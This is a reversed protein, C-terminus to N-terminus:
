PDASGGAPRDHRPRVPRRRRDCGPRRGARDGRRRPDPEAAAPGLARRRLPRAGRKRASPRCLRDGPLATEANGDPRPRRLRPRHGRGLRRTDLDDVRLLLAPVSARGAAGSPGPPLPVARHTAYTRHQVASVTGSSDLLREIARALEVSVRELEEDLARTCPPEGFVVRLIEVGKAFAAELEPDARDEDVREVE